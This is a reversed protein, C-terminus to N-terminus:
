GIKNVLEILLDKLNKIDNEASAAGQKISVDALGESVGTLMGELNAELNSVSRFLSKFSEYSDKLLDSVKGDINSTDISGIHEGYEKVKSQNIGSKQAAHTAYTDYDLQYLSLESDSVKIGYILFDVDKIKAYVYKNGVQPRYLKTQYTYGDDGLIDVPGFGDNSGGITKGPLLGAIIEEFIFGASSTNFNARMERIYELIIISSMSQQLFQIDDSPNSILALKDAIRGNGAIGFSAAFRKIRDRLDKQNVNINVWGAYQDKVDVEEKLVQRILNRLEMIIFIGM